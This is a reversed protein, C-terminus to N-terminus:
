REGAPPKRRNTESDQPASHRNAAHGVQANKADHKSGTPALSPRHAGDEVAFIRQHDLDGPRGKKVADRDRAVAVVPTEERRHLVTM